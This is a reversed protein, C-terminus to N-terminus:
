PPSGPFAKRLLELLRDSRRLDAMRGIQEPSVHLM